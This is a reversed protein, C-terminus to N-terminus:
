VCYPFSPIFCPEIGSCFFDTYSLGFPFNSEFSAHEASSIDCNVKERPDFDTQFLSKLNILLPDVNMGGQLFLHQPLCQVNTNFQVLAAASKFMCQSMLKDSFAGTVGVPWTGSFDFLPDDNRFRNFYTNSPALGNKLQYLGFVDLKMIRDIEGFVLYMQTADLGLTNLDNSVDVPVVDASLASGVVLEVDAPTKYLLRLDSIASSKFMLAPDCTTSDWDDWACGSPSNSVGDRLKTFSPVGMERGRRILIAMIDNNGRNGNAVGINYNIGAESAGQIYKEMDLPFTDLYNDTLAPEV